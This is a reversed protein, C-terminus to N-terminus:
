LAATPVARAPTPRISRGSKRGIKSRKASKQSFLLYPVRNKRRPSISLVKGGARTNSSGRCRHSAKAPDVYATHMRGSLRSTRQYAFLDHRHPINRFTGRDEMAMHALRRLPTGPHAQINRLTGPHERYRPISTVFGFSGVKVHVSVGAGPCTPLMRDFAFIVFRVWRRRPLTM